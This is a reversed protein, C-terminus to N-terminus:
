RFREKFSRVEDVAIDLNINQIVTHTEPSLPATLENWKRDCLEQHYAIQSIEAAGRDRLGSDLHRRKYIEIIPAKLHIFGHIVERTWESIDKVLYVPQDKDLNLAFVLHSLLLTAGCRERLQQLHDRYTTEILGLMTSQPTDELRKYDERSAKYNTEFSPVIGLHYMLLRSESTIFLDAEQEKLKNAVTDKGVANVGYITVISM